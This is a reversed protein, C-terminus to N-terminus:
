RRRAASPSTRPWTASKWISRAAFTRRRALPSTGGPVYNFIFEGTESTVQREVIGTGENSLEVDTGPLVGGSTDTVIGAFTATTRQAAAPAALCFLMVVLTLTRSVLLERRM